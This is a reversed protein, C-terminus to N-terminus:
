TGTQHSPIMPRVDPLGRVCATAAVQLAFNTGARSERSEYLVDPLHRQILLQKERVESASIGRLQRVVSAPDRMFGASSPKVWLREWPVRSPPRAFPLDVSQLRDCLVVPICGVALASYMISRAGNDGAPMLCFVASAMERLTQRILQVSPKRGNNGGGAVAPTGPERLGLAARRLVVNSTNGDANRRATEVLEVARRTCRNWSSENHPRTIRVLVDKEGHVVAALPGVACRIGAHIGGVQLSGAFHLLLRRRRQTVDAFEPEAAAAAIRSSAWPIGVVCRGVTSATKGPKYRGASGTRLLKGLAGLRRDLSQYDRSKYSYASSAYMHDAGKHRQWWPSASLATAAQAMRSEHSSNACDADRCASGVRTSAYEYVAVYFLSAQAPDSVRLPSLGLARRMGVEALDSHASSDLLQEFATCGELWKHNLAPEAYLYVTPRAADGM